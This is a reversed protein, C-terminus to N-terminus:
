SLWVLSWGVFSSFGSIRWQAARIVGGSPGMWFHHGCLNPGGGGQRFSIEMGVDVGGGGRLISMM